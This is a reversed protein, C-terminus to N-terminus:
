RSSAPSLYFWPLADFPLKDQLEAGQEFIWSGFAIEQPKAMLNKEVSAVQGKYGFGDWAEQLEPFLNKQNIFQFVLRNSYRPDKLAKRLGM